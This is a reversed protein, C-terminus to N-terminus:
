LSTMWTCFTNLLERVAQQFEPIIEFIKGTFIATLLKLVWEFIFNVLTMGGDVCQYVVPMYQRLEPAFHEAVHLFIGMMVLCCMDKGLRRGLCDLRSMASQMRVENAVPMEPTEVVTLATTPTTAKSKTSTTSKTSESM